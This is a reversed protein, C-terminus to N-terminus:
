QSKSIRKLKLTLHSPGFDSEIKVPVRVGDDTIWLKANKGRAFLGGPEDVIPRLLWCSRRSGDPMEVSDHGMVTVEVPNHDDRFYRPLRYVSDKKFDMTRLFYIFALDDLPLRPTRKKLTDSRNRYFGSDGFIQFDDDAIQRGGEKIWHVFRRSAFDNVGTWSELKTRNHFWAFDVDLGLSFHWRAVGSVTDVGVVTMTASGPSAFLYSGSFELLEGVAFPVPAPPTARMTQLLMAGVVFPIM